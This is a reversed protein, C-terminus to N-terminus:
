MTAQGNIIGANILLWFRSMYHTLDFNSADLAISSDEKQLSTPNVTLSGLELSHNGSFSFANSIVTQTTVGDAFTWPSLTLDTAGSREFDDYFMINSALSQTSSVANVPLMLLPFLMMVVPILGLIKRSPIQKNM